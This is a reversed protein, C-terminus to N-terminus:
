SVLVLTGACPHVGVMCLRPREQRRRVLKYRLPEAHAGSTLAELALVVGVTWAVMNM